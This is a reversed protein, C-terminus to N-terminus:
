LDAALPPLMAAPGPADSATEDLLEAFLALV